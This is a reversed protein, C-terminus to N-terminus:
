TVVGLTKDCGCLKLSQKLDDSLNTISLSLSKEQLTKQASIFLQIAPMDVKQINELDLVLNETITQSLSLLKKHLDEVEYITLKDYELKKTM